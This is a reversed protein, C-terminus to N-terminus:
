VHARGIEWNDKNINSKMYWWTRVDMGFIRGNPTQSLPIYNLPTSKRIKESRPVSDPYIIHISNRTVMHKGEPILKTVNCSFLQAAFILILIHTYLGRKKM